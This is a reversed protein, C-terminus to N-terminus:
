KLGLSPRSSGFPESEWLTFRRLVQVRWDGYMINCRWAKFVAFLSEIAKAAFSWHDGWEKECMSRLSRM